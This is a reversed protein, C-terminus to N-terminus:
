KAPPKGTQWTKGGDTSYREQGTRPNHQVKIEQGGGGKGAEERLPVKPVGRALRNLQAEFMALQKEAYRRTPTGASPLTATVASRLDESGQGAGLVSRMAMSNEKLQFLQIVYDQQAETIGSRVLSDVYQMGQGAPQRLALALLARQDANFSEDGMRNIADRTYGIAGRIDEILATKGLAPAAAGAPMYRDPNELVDKGRVLVPMNGQEVDLMPYFRGMGYAMGRSEGTAAAEENKIREAEKGWKALDSKYQASEAGGAYKSPDPAPGIQAGIEPAVKGVPSPTTAPKEWVKAGTVPKGEADFYMNSSPDFSGAMPEGAPGQLIMPRFKKAKDEAERHAAESQFNEIQAQTLENQRALNEQQATAANKQLAAQRAQQNQALLRNQAGHAFENYAQGAMAPNKWGAAISSLVGGLNRLVGHPAVAQLQKETPVDPVPVFPPSVPQVKPTGPPLPYM